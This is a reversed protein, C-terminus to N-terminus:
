KARRYKFECNEDNRFTLADGSIKFEYVGPGTLTDLKVRNNDVLQYKGGNWNPIAGVYTGDGFFEVKSPYVVGCPAGQLKNWQGVLRDKSGCAALCIVLAIQCPALFATISKPVNM